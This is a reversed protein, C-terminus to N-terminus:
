LQDFKSKLGLLFRKLTNTAATRPHCKKTVAMTKKLMDEDM